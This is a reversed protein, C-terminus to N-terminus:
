CVTKKPCLAPLPGSFVWAAVALGLPGGARAFAEAGAAGLLDTALFEFGLLSVWFGVRRWLPLVQQGQLMLWSLLLFYPAFNQRWAMPSCVISFFLSGCFAGLSLRPQRLSVATAGALGCLLVLSAGWGLGVGLGVVRALQTPIGLNDPRLLHKAQSLPLFHLWELHAPFWAGFGKQLSFGVVLFLKFAVAGVFAWFLRPRSQIVGSSMFPALLLQTPKLLFTFVFTVGVLASRWRSPRSAEWLSVGLSLAALLLNYQGLRMEAWWPGAALLWGMVGVTLGAGSLRGLWLLSAWALSDWLLRAGWEPLLALPQLLWTLAPPKTHEAHDALQYQSQGEWFRHVARLLIELDPRGPQLFWCRWVWYGFVLAALLGMARKM